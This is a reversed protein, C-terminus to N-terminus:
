CILYQFFPGLSLHFDGKPIGTKGKPKSFGFNDTSHGTKGKPISFGFIETSRGRDPSLRSPLTPSYTLAQLDSLNALTIKTPHPINLLGFTPPINQNTAQGSQKPNPSPDSFYNKISPIASIFTFLM